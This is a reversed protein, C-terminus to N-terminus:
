LVKNFTLTDRIELLCGLEPDSARVLAERSAMNRTDCLFDQRRMRRSKRHMQSIYVLLLHATSLTQM